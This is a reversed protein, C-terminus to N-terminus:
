RRGGIGLGKMDKELQAAWNRLTTSPGTRMAQLSSDLAAQRKPHQALYCLAQNQQASLGLQLDQGIKRYFRASEEYKGQEFLAEAMWFVLEADSTDAQGFWQLAEAFQRRELAAKGSAKANLKDPVNSPQKGDPTRIGALPASARLKSRCFAFLAPDAKPLSAPNPSSADRAASPRPGNHTPSDTEPTNSPPPHGPVPQERVVPFPESTPPQQNKKTWFYTLVGFLLLCLMLIGVWVLRKQTKQPPANQSPGAQTEASWQRMKTRLEQARLRLMADRVLREDAVAQRLAANQGMRAEFAERAADSMDGNLYALIEEQLREENDM